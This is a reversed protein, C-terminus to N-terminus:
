CSNEGTIYKALNRVGFRTNGNEDHWKGIEPYFALAIDQEMSVGTPKFVRFAILQDNGVRHALMEWPVGFKLLVARANAVNTARREAKHKEYADWDTIEIGQRNYISALIVM